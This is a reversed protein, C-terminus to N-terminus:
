KVFDTLPTTLFDELPIGQNGVLVVRHPKFRQVFLDVGSRKIGEWGSKVEIAIISEGQQLVFDVEDDGERWYFLEISTGRISNLLHAGIMSEILRGWYHGDSRAEHFSKNGQATMLATNFVAFKPSSSRQRLRQPSFKQLGEILGAGAMLDLYHALTTTNGNEQLQGLMKTFSLVQGSYVCGLQFLRRLLVPRNIQTMLLIDRSITTEILADNIYNKWRSPDNEDALAAAGPYGGFYAYKELSWGFVKRMEDFSWHTIPIIEFRGALSETLGKQVLWPSSGLIVLSLNTGKRTDEDWLSKILDSWHPIKQVEDLIFLCGKEKDVKQRAVEWQQQLWSLDQLTAMDASAFHIPKQLSEAVQTILTTKGGQRPGLLVQIFKRPELVRELIKTFIPRKQM